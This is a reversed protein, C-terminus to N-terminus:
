FLMPLKTPSKMLITTFYFLTTHMILSEMEMTALYLLNPPMTLSKM